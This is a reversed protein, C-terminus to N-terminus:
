TEFSSSASFHPSAFPSYGSKTCNSLCLRWAGWYFVFSVLDSSFFSVGAVDLLGNVREAAPPAVALPLPNAPFSVLSSSISSSM